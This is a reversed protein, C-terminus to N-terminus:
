LDLYYRVGFDPSGIVEKEFDALLAKANEMSAQALFIAESNSDNKRILEAIKREYLNTDGSQLHPWCSSCDILIVEVNKGIKAASDEILKKSIPVTSPATFALGIRDYKQVLYEVVPKDIREIGAVDECVEGYSSCTCVIVGASKNKVKEAEEIFARADAKGQTLAHHLLDENVFHQIEINPDYKRVLDDFRKVNIEATHLFTIM